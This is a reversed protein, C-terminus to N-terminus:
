SRGISSHAIIPPLTLLHYRTHDAKEYGDVEAAPDERGEDCECPTFVEAVPPGGREVWQQHGHHSARYPREDQESHRLETCFDRIALSV